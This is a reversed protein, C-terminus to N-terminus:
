ITVLDDNNKLRFCIYEFSLWSLYNVDLEQPIGSSEARTINYVELVEDINNQVYERCDGAYILSSVCGSQCGYQLVQNIYLDLEKEEQVEALIIDITDVVLRSETNNRINMLNKKSLMCIGGKYLKYNLVM